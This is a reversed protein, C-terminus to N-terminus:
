SGASTVTVDDFRAEAGLPAGVGIGGSRLPNADTVDIVKSGDILVQIRGGTVTVQLDMATSSIIGSQHFLTTVSGGAVRYLSLAPAEATTQGIIELRYYSGKIGSNDASVGSARFYLDARRRFTSNDSEPVNDVVTRLTYDTWTNDGNHVFAASGQDNGSMDQSYYWGLVSFQSSLLSVWQSSPGSDFHDEFLTKGSATSAIGFDQNVVSQGSKLNVAHGANGKPTTQTFGAAPSIAVTYSGAGLGALVYNGNGDTVTSTEGPDLKGNHNADIFVRQNALGSESSNRRSDRNSDDFVNGRIAAPAAGSLTPYLLSTSIPNDDMVIGFTAESSGNEFYYADVPYLGGKNFFVNVDVNGDDHHPGDNTVAVVGGILLMSGDDSHTGFNYTGAAPISLYGRLRLVVAGVQQSGLSAPALTGADQGLWSSVTDDASSGYQPNAATFIGDPAGSAVPAGDAFYVADGHAQGYGESQQEGSFFYGVLGTGSVTPVPGAAQSAPVMVGNFEEFDKGMTVQATSVTLPYCGAAPATIRYGDQPVIRITYKGAPVNLAYAGYDDTTAVVENGDPTGSGNADAYVLWGSLGTEGADHRGNDNADSYVTGSVLALATIGFSLGTVNQGASVTTKIAAGTLPNSGRYGSKVVDRVEYAGATLGTFYFDGAGDTLSTQEGPDLKGNNNADLYVTWGILGPEADNGGSGNLDNYVNGSISAPAPPVTMASKILINSGGKDNVLVLVSRRGAWAYNGAMAYNHAGIVHFTHGNETIGGMSSTGDGWYITASFNSAKGLPDADTFAAITGTFTQYADCSASVGKGSLPADSAAATAQATARSLFPSAAAAGVVQAVASMLTRSELTEAIPHSTFRRERQGLAKSLLNKSNSM